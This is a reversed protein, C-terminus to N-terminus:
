LHSYQPGQQKTWIHAWCLENKLCRRPSVTNFGKWLWWLQIYFWLIVSHSPHSPVKFTMKNWGGAMPQNDGVLDTQGPSWEAQGQDGGYSEYAMFIAEQQNFTKFHCRNILCFSVSRQLVCPALKRFRRTTLYVDLHRFVKLFFIWLSYRSPIWFHQFQCYAQEIGRNLLRTELFHLMSSQHKWFPLLSISDFLSQFMHDLNVGHFIMRFVCLAPYSGLMTPLQRRKEGATSFVWKGVFCLFLFGMHEQKWERMSKTGKIKEGEQHM